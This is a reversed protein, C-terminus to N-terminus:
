MVDCRCVEGACSWVDCRCVEGACSWVDCRCVEGACSWVDCRCVEGACSRTGWSGRWGESLDPQDRGGPPGHSVHQLSARCHGHLSPAESAACRSHGPGGCLLAGALQVTWGILISIHQVCTIDCIVEFLLVLVDIM